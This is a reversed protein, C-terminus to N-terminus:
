NQRGAGEWYDRTAPPVDPPAPLTADIIVPLTRNLRLVAAEIADALDESQLWPYRQAITDTVYRLRDGIKGTKYLQEATQTLEEIKRIKEERSMRRWELWGLWALACAIVIGVINEAM